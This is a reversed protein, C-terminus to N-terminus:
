LKRLDTLHLSNQIMLSFMEPYSIGHKKFAMYVGGDDGLYCDPSLEIIYAHGNYIHCDIRMFEVKSFSKFLSIMAQKDDDNLLESYKMDSADENIKKTELGYITDTFYEDGNLLLQIEECLLVKEKNGFLIVEVEYGPIYEEVLIPQNQYRQLEKIYSAAAEPTHQISNYTIGTSGGGYNPKIVVPFRLFSIANLQFTNNADRVLVAPASKLGFEKIYEKSLYKDNCLMHTYSDAGIFRINNSECLAPVLAKSSPSAIGYRTSFMLWDKYDAINEVYPPIEEFMVVNECLSNLANKITNAVSRSNGEADNREVSYTKGDIIKDTM